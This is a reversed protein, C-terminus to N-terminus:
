RADTGAPAGYGPLGRQTRPSADPAALPRAAPDAGVLEGGLGCNAAEGNAWSGLTVCRPDPQAHSAGGDWDIMGDGDNDRDDDCSPDEYKWAPDRCGPDAPYDALGDGDNDAGDDCVLLPSREDLDSASSCGPDSPFDTLGDGDDDIGDNCSPKTTVALIASRYFALDIM